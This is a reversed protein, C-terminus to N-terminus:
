VSGDGFFLVVVVVVVVVVNTCRLVRKLCKFHVFVLVVADVCLFYEYVCRWLLSLLLLLLMFRLM